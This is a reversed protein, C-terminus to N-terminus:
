WRGLTSRPRHCGRIEFGRVFVQKPTRRSIGTARDCTSEGWTVTTESWNETIPHFRLIHEGRNTNMSRIFFEMRASVITQGEISATGFRFLGHKPGFNHVFVDDGDGFNTNAQNGNIWADGSVLLEVTEGSTVSPTGLSALSFLALTPLQPITKTLDVLRNFM